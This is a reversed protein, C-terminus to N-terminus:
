LMRHTGMDHERLAARQRVGPANMVADTEHSEQTFGVNSKRRQFLLHGWPHVMFADVAGTSACFHSRRTPQEMNKDQIGAATEVPPAFQRGMLRKIELLRM